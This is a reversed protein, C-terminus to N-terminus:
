RAPAIAVELDAFARAYALQHEQEPAVLVVLTQSQPGGAAAADLSIGGQKASGAIGGPGLVLLVEVGEVVTETHPQSGSYTALIDVRDGARVTGPPLATPVAFARLGEPLLSAVPGARVRALRTQTLTEGSAVDALAVRGAAQSITSFAGPQAYALPVRELRLDAQSVVAGRAVPRTAVVVSAGAASGAGSGAVTSAYARVAIM